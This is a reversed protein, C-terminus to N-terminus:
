NTELCKEKFIKVKEFKQNNVLLGKKAGFEKLCAASNATGLQIAYEINGKKKILGSIFGSAFADGAGTMDIAKTKLAKAKYIYRGDSVVVGLPGKTMIAIGPCFKDIKRFIEKEKNFPIKTLFSAEEQNLILVDVKKM